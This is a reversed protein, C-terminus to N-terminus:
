TYVSKSTEQVLGEVPQEEPRMKKIKVIIMALITITMKM